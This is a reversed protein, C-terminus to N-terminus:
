KENKLNFVTIAGELKRRFETLSNLRRLERWMIRPRFYFQKYAANAIAFMEKRSVKEEWLLSFETHPNRAYDMWYDHEFFGSRLGQDYIESGPYPAFVHYEAHDLKLNLSFKIIGEVDSKDEGPTFLIFNGVSMIKYKNLLSVATMIDKVSLNKKIAKL